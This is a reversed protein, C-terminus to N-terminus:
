EPLFLGPLFRHGRQAGGVAQGLRVHLGFAEAARAIIMPALDGLVIDLQDGIQDIRGTFRAGDIQGATQADGIRRDGMRDRAQLAVAEDVGLGVTRDEQGATAAVQGLLAPTSMADDVPQQKCQADALLDRADIRLPDLM